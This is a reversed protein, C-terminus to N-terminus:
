DADALSFTGDDDARVKRWLRLVCPLDRDVRLPEYSAPMCGGFGNYTLVLTGRPANRFAQQASGIDLAYRDCGLEVDDALFGGPGHLNEGFPNYLYYAGAAPLSGAQLSGLLFSARDDLEFERALAQAIGVLRPRHELGILQCRSALAVAVCFKGPGAGIDVVRQVELEDLWQAARLAVALPTWYESSASRIDDPLLSDFARDPPCQGRRLREAIWSVPGTWADRPLLEDASTRVRKM